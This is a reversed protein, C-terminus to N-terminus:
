VRLFFFASIGQKILTCPLTSLRNFDDGRGRRGTYYYMRFHQMDVMRSYCGRRCQVDLLPPKALEKDFIRIVSRLFINGEGLEAFM